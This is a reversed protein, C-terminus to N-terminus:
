RPSTVNAFAEARAAHQNRQVAAVGLVIVARVALDQVGAPAVAPEQDPSRRDAAPQEADPSLSKPLSM